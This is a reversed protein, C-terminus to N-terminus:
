VKSENGAPGKKELQRVRKKLRYLEQYLGDMDKQTPVPLTQVFDQLMEQRAAVFDEMANLTNGLIQIYEASKFLTMYHGELIKVWMRYYAHSDEPLGEERTLAELKEQMVKFSKEMPLYILYIFQAMTSQFVNFKDTVRGMREQYARTLGLQPVNFFRTFEEEYIETWVKFVDQDLNEFKYAETREGIKGAKQIWQLQLQFYRDWGSQSMRLLVEPLTHIGQLFSDMVGPENMISSIARWMKLASEMSEEVRDKDGGKSATPASPAGSAGGWMKIMQDWFGSASELWAGLLTEPTERKQSM